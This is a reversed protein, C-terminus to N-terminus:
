EGHFLEDMADAPAPAMASGFVPALMMVGTIRCLVLLFVPGGAAAFEAITDM